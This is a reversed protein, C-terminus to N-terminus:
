CLFATPKRVLESRTPLLQFVRLDRDILADSRNELAQLQRKVAPDNAKPAIVFLLRYRWRHEVLDIAIAAFPQVLCLGLLLSTLAHALRRIRM